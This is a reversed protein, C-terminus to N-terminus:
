ADFGELRNLAKEAWKPLRYEAELRLTFGNAVHHNVHICPARQDPLFSFEWRGVWFNHWFRYEDRTYRFPGFSREVKPLRVGAATMLDHFSKEDDM